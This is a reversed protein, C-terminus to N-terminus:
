QLDYNESIEDLADDFNQYEGREYCERAEALEVFIEEASLPKFPSEKELVDM